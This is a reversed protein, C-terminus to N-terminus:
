HLDAWDAREARGARIRQDSARLPWVRAPLADARRELEAVRRRLEGRSTM